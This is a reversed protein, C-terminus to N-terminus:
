GWRTACWISAKASDYNHWLDEQNTAAGKRDQGEAMANGVVRCHSPCWTFTMLHGEDHLVALLNLVDSVDASKPLVARQLSAIRLQVSQSDTVIRVKLPSEETQIHQLAKKIAKIEAQFSSCWTGAPIAYSHHITLNSQPWCHAHHSRLRNSSRENGLWGHLHSPRIIKLEQRTEAIGM